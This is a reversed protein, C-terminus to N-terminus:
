HLLHSTVCRTSSLGGGSASPRRVDRSSLLNADHLLTQACASKNWCARAKLRLLQAFGDEDDSLAIQLLIASLVGDDVTHLGSEDALPSPGVSTVSSQESCEHTVDTGAAVFDSLQGNDGAHTDRACLAFPLFLVKACAGM